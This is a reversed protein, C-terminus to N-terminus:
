PLRAVLVGADDRRTGADRLVTAAILEPSRTLLGPYDTPNWRDVVGDSHMLVFGDPPLPYEYERIQRRQHGAIGPMSIMGRRTGEFSFITGAINGLGAYRAQRTAPDLDAVALAAGRTHGMARHLAEVIAAPSTAPTERFVRVAERSAAAALGGHGLGDCVLMQRRGDMERIAVADGSVTEGTIPRTLGSAWAPPPTVGPWVQVALVTGRGPVSHLDWRGAQRQIAGLGIGLTGATSHGDGFAHPVDSMGPGSDIAILEVGAQEATRVTRVLITGQHAHKVLNGAMEAAVISLDAIRREPMALEAALREAARRVAAATGAAEVRFWVGEDLLGEPVLAM